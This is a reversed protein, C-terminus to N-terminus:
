GPFVVLSFTLGDMALAVLAPVDLAEEAKAAAALTTRTSPM